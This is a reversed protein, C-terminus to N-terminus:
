GDVNMVVVNRELQDLFYFRVAFRKAHFVERRFVSFVIRELNLEGLPLRKRGSRRM